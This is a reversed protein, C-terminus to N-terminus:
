KQLIKTIEEFEKGMNLNLYINYLGAAWKDKQEPALERYKEMYPKAKTYYRKVISRRQKANNREAEFALNLYAVGANYYVDPLTDNMAIIKDCIIICDQYKGTNLLINSKGYLFLVNASDCRIAEDVVALSSDTKSENNYYDVLRTFFFDSKPYEKFGTKLVNCYKEKENRENYVNALIQLTRERGPSYKLASDSYKLVKEQDLLKAGCYTALYAASLSQKTSYDYKYQAFLPQSVCDLYTDLMSYASMFNQKSIFFVGGNYLNRRLGNLYEANRKRYKIKVRGKEDPMADVSDMQEYAKFMRECNNFLAVTDYKQKLYLNENGQEYQMRISESLMQWVKINHINDSDKLLTRMLAEAKDFDKGSKIYTQAQALEKKQALASICVPILLFLFVLLRKM